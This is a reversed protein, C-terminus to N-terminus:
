RRAATSGSPSPSPSSAGLHGVGLRVPQAVPQGDAVRRGRQGPRRGGPQHRGAPGEPGPRLGRLRRAKLAQRPRRSPTRPTRCRRPDPGPQRGDRRWGVAATDTTGGGATAARERGAAAFLTDLAQQLTDEFAVNNGFSVLVKRLLPFSTTAEAQVYVPEVYLLGGGIPFTLLNGYSM